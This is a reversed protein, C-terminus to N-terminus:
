EPDDYTGSTTVSPFYKLPSPQELSEPDSTDVPGAYRFYEAYQRELEKKQAKQPARKPTM